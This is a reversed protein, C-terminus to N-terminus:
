AFGVNAVSIHQGWRKVEKRMAFADRRCFITSWRVVVDVVVVPREAVQCFHNIVTARICSSCAHSAVMVLVRAANDDNRKRPMMDEQAQAQSSGLSLSLPLLMECVFVSVCLCFICIAFLHKFAFTHMLRPKIAVCFGGVCSMKRIPHQCIIYNNNTLACQKRYPPWWEGHQTSYHSDNTDHKEDPAVVCCRARTFRAYFM